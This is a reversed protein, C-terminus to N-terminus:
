NELSFKVSVQIWSWVPYYGVRAAQYGAERAAAAAATALRRDVRNITVSEAVRGEPDILLDLVVTGRIRKRLCEQPYEPVIPTILEAPKRTLDRVDSVFVLTERRSCCRRGQLDYQGAEELRDLARAADARLFWVVGDDSWTGALDALLHDARELIRRRDEPWDGRPAAPGAYPLCHPEGQGALIYIQALLLRLWPSRPMSELADELVVVADGGNALHFLELAEDLVAKAASLPPAPRTCRSLQHVRWGNEPVPQEASGAMTALALVLIMTLSTSRAHIRPNM